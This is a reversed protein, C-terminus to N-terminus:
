ALPAVTPPPPAPTVSKVAKLCKRLLVVWLVFLFGFVAAMVFWMIILGISQGKAQRLVGGFGALGFFVTLLGCVFAAMGLIGGLVGYGFNQWGLIARQRAPETAVRRKAAESAAQQKRAEWAARRKAAEQAAGQRTAERAAERRQQSEESVEHALQAVRYKIYLARARDM